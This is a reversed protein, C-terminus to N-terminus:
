LVLGCGIDLLACVKFQSYMDTLSEDGAVKGWTQVQEERFDWDIHKNQSFTHSLIILLTYQCVQTLLFLDRNRLDIYHNGFEPSLTLMHKHTCSYMM